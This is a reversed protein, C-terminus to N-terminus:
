ASRKGQQVAKELHAIDAVRIYGRGYEILGEEQWQRLHRNVSV